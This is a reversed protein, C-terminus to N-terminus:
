CKTYGSGRCTQYLASTRERATHAHWAPLTYMVAGVASLATGWATAAGGSPVCAGLAEALPHATPPASLADVCVSPHQRLMRAFFVPEACRGLLWEADTRVQVQAAYAERFCPARSVACWVALLLLAVWTVAHCRYVM